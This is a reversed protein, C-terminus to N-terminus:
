RSLLCPTRLIPDQLTQLTLSGIRERGTRHRREAARWCFSTNLTQFALLASLWAAALNFPKFPRCPPRVQHLCGGVDSSFFGLLHPFLKLRLEANQEAHQLFKFTLHPHLTYTRLEYIGADAGTRPPISTFSLHRVPATARAICAAAWRQVVRQMTSPPSTAGELRRVVEHTTELREKARRRGELVGCCHSLHVSRQSAGTLHATLGGLHGLLLAAGLHGLAAGLLTELHTARGQPPVWGARWVRARTPLLAYEAHESSASRLPPLGM